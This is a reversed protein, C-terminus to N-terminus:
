ARARGQETAAPYSDEERIRGDRLVLVRDVEAAIQPDHSIILITPRSSSDLLTRLLHHAGAEDLHTTPEDLMLLKPESLLARAIALRQRQGGSLLVGDEGVSTEYGDALTAVFDSAGARQAAREIEGDTADPRGYAINERVTAPLIMPDQLVVGIGGRLVPVDLEDFPIGDARVAGRQPAYLGALLALITSKGAANPGLLAIAEGPEIALTVGRLVPEEGYAFYVDELALGGKFEIRRTGRYPSAKDLELLYTLRGLSELGSLVLPMAGQAASLQTRLLGLVAYFALLDGLSMRGEAVAAGGLVLVLVGATASGVGHLLVYAGHMWVMARGAEGLESIQGRRKAIEPAEASHLKTLTIARLATQTQASFSDSERQWVQTRRRVASSIWRNVLVLLPLAVALVATLLPDLILLALALAASITLAPMASAVLANTTLDLRETDQVITAHLRGLDARDFYSRPLHIVKKLLRSRLRIMSRTTARLSLWRTVMGLATSALFLALIAAGMVVLKGVEEGPITEDFARRVLLAIPILLLSQVVAIALAAAVLRGSGSLLRAFQRWTSRM